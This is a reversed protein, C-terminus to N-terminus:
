GGVTWRLTAVVWESARWLAGWLAGLASWVLLPAVANWGGRRLRQPLTFLRGSPLLMVVLFVVILLAGAAPVAVNEFRELGRARLHRELPAFVLLAGLAGPIAGVFPLILLLANDAKRSAVVYLLLPACFLALAVVLRLVFM